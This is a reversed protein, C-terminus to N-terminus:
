LVISTGFSGTEFRPQGNVKTMYGVQNSIFRVDNITRDVNFHTHGWVVTSLNKQLLLNEFRNSFCPNMSNGEFRPHITFSVPAHHTMMVTLGDFPKDIEQMIWEKDRQHWALMEAASICDTDNYISYFDPYPTTFGIKKYNRTSNLIMSHPQTGFLDFDTWLTAGIIRLNDHYFVSRNLFNVNPFKAATQTMEEIADDYTLGYFEHNGAVICVPKDPFIANAVAIGHGASGIDGALLIIDSGETARRIDNGALELAEDDWFETHLDSVIGIKTM